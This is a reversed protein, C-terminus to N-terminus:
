SLFFTSVWTQMATKKENAQNTAATTEINDIQYIKKLLIKVCFIHEFLM